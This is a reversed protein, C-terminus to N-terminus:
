KNVENVDNGFYDKLFQSTYRIGLYKGSLEHVRIIKNDSILKKIKGALLGDYGTKGSVTYAAHLNVKRLFSKKDKDSLSKYSPIVSYFNANDDNTARRLDSVTLISFSLKGDPTCSAIAQYKTRAHAKVRDQIISKINKVEVIKVM